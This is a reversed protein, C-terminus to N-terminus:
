ITPWWKWLSSNTYHTFVKRSQWVGLKQKGISLNKIIIYYKQWALCFLKMNLWFNSPLWSYCAVVKRILSVCKEQKRNSSNCISIHKHLKKIFSVYSDCLLLLWNLNFIWSFIDLDLPDKLHSPTKLFWISLWNSLLSVFYHCFYFGVFCCHVFCFISIMLDIM